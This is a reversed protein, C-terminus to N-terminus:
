PCLVDVLLHGNLTKYKNILLLLQLHSWWLEHEDAVQKNQSQTVAQLTGTLPNAAQLHVLLMLDSSYVPATSVALSIQLFFTKYLVFPSM